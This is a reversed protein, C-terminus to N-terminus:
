RDGVWWRGLEVFATLILPSTKVWGVWGMLGGVVGGVLRGVRRFCDRDITWTRGRAGSGGGLGFWGLEFWGSGVFALRRFCDPGTLDDRGLGGGDGGAWGGM